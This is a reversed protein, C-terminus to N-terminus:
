RRSERVIELAALLAVLGCVSAPVLVLVTPVDRPVFVVLAIAVLSCAASFRALALVTRERALVDELDPAAV